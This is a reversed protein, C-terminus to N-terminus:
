IFTTLLFLGTLLMSLYLISNVKKKQKQDMRKYKKTKKMIITTTVLVGGLMGSTYLM